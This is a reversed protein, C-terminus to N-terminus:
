RREYHRGGWPPLPAHHAQHGGAVARAPVAWHGVRVLYSTAHCRAAKSRECPIIRQKPEYGLLLLTLRSWQIRSRFTLQNVRSILLLIGYVLTLGKGM